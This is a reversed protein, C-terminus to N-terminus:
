RSIGREKGISWSLKQRGMEFHMDLGRYRELEKRWPVIAFQHTNAVVAMRGRALFLSKEYCGSLAQGKNLEVLMRKSKQSESKEASRMEQKRLEDYVSTNLQTANDQLLGIKRLHKIREDRAQKFRGELGENQQDLWTLGNAKVQGQLSMWSKVKLVAQETNARDLRVARELYNSPITWVDNGDISVIQKGRLAELRRKLAMHFAQSDQPDYKRHLDDSYKGGSRKAIKDIKLDSPKAESKVKDIEVVAGIVPSVEQGAEGFSLYWNRGKHDEIILFRQDKLEDEAGNAVVVGLLTKSEGQVEDFFHVDKNWIKQEYNQALSRVIDGRKGRAKLVDQWAPKLQWEGNSIQALNQSQLYDLRQRVFSHNVQGILPGDCWDKIPGTKLQNEIERDLSTFSDKTVEMRKAELIERDSRLGLERTVIEEARGRMGSSLYERAIVLDRGTRDKGRLVIHTHPRDTNFHDVGVWDLKVGLDKEVQQMLDRSTQRLDKIQSSDEPSVIFRFQHRDNASRELFKGEDIKVGDKSYLEGGLGDKDVGDRQLYKLHIGFGARGLSKSPKALYTKILVRRRHSFSNLKTGRRLQQAIAGGKSINRGTFNSKLKQQHMSRVRAGIGVRDSVKRDRIKGLRVKFVDDM